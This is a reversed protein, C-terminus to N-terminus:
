RPSLNRNYGRALTVTGVEMASSREAKLCGWPMEWLLGLTFVDDRGELM